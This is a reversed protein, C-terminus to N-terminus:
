VGLEIEQRFEVANQPFIYQVREGEPQFALDQFNICGVRHRTREIDSRIEDPMGETLGSGFVIWSGRTDVLIKEGDPGVVEKIYVGGEGERAEQFILLPNNVVFEQGPEVESIQTDRRKLTTILSRDDDQSWYTPEKHITAGRRVEVKGRFYAPYVEKGVFERFNEPNTLDNRSDAIKDIIEKGAYAAGLGLIVKVFGRRTLGEKTESM